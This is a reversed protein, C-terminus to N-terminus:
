KISVCLMTLDDSQEAGDVFADLACKMEDILFLSRTKPTREGFPQTSERLVRLMRKEGFQEQVLNEAENVGDTYVFLSSGRIDDLHGGVFTYDPWLGIPVNSEVDLFRFVTQSTHMRREGYVPANHGCNCYDLNGAKLDIIGIFMSVFVASENNVSMTDNLKTAIVEPPFGEKAVTRFLNVAVAMTLSAPIGKGSVDGVCFYLRDDQLFFDYLDGGVEKAPVVTAYLDIDRRDPFAPFTRPVMSMQIDRAIRLESDIREKATTTDALQNYANRLEQMQKRRRFYYFIFFALTILIIVLSAQIQLDMKSLRLDKAENEARTVDIQAAYEYSMKQVEATRISDRFKKHLMQYIYAQRYDGLSAYAQSIFGLRDSGGKINTAIDIAENYRGNKMAHYFNVVPGFSDDHGNDRKLKEREAYARNFDDRSYQDNKYAICIYSWASLRHQMIVNPEALAKRACELVKEPKELNVYIKAMGLYPAAASEDPFFRHQYNIAETFEHEAQSYHGLSSSMTALAYTSSYLGFKSDHQYAYDHIQHAQELGRTYNVKNFNYIAQNSWAKYFLREQSPGAERCAEILQDTILMFSDTENSSYYRYMDKELQAIRDDGGSTQAAVALTAMVATLAAVYLRRLMIFVNKKM